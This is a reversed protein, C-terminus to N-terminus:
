LTSSNSLNKMSLIGLQMGEEVAEPGVPLPASFQRRRASISVLGRQRGERQVGSGRRGQKFGHPLDLSFRVNSEHSDASQVSCFSAHRDKLLADLSINVCTPSAAESNVGISECSANSRRREKVTDDPEPIRVSESLPELKNQTDALNCVHREIDHQLTHLVRLLRTNFIDTVPNPYRELSFSSVTNAFGQNRFSHQPM